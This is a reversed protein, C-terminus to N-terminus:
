RNRSTGCMSGGMRADELWYITRWVVPSSAPCYFYLVCAKNVQKKLDWVHIIGDQCGAALLKSGRSFCVSNMAEMVRSDGESPLSGMLAANGYHIFLPGLEGASVLVQDDM